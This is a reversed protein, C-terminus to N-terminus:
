SAPIYSSEIERMEVRQPGNFFIVEPRLVCTCCLQSGPKLTTVVEKNFTACKLYEKYIPSRDLGLAQCLRFYITNQMSDDM